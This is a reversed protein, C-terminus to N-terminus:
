NFANIKDLKNIKDKVSSFGNHEPSLLINKNEELLQLEELLEGKNTLWYNYATQIFDHGEEYEKLIIDEPICGWIFDLVYMPNKGVVECWERFDDPGTCELDNHKYNLIMNGLYEIPWLRKYDECVGTIDYATLCQLDDFSVDDDCDVWVIHGRDQAWCVKGGFAIKLMSAFYYCYGAIFLHDINESVSGDLDPFSVVDDIFKIVKMNVVDRFRDNNQYFDLVSGM